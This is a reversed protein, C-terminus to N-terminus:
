KNEMELKELKEYLDVLDKRIAKIAEVIDTHMMQLTRLMQLNCGLKKMVEADGMVNAYEVDGECDEDCNVWIDDGIAYDVYLEYVTKKKM